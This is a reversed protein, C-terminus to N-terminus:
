GAYAKAWWPASGKTAPVDPAAAGSGAHASGFKLELGGTHEKTILGREYCEMAFAAATAYSITDIGYTDCYFNAELVYQPDFIGMNAGFGQWM